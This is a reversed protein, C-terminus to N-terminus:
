RGFSVHHSGTCACTWSAATHRQERHRECQEGGAQSSGPSKLSMTARSGAGQKVARDNANVIAQGPSRCSPRAGRV